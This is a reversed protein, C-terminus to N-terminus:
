GECNTSLSKRRCTTDLVAVAANAAVVVNRNKIGLPPTTILILCPTIRNLDPNSNPLKGPAEHLGADGPKCTESNAWHQLPTSINHGNM